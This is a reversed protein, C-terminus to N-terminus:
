DAHIELMVRAVARMAGDAAERLNDAASPSHTAASQDLADSLTKLAELARTRIAPDLGRENLRNTVADLGSKGLKTALKASSEKGSTILYNNVDSAFDSMLFIAIEAV